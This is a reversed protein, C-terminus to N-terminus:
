GRVGGQFRDTPIIVVTAAYVDVTSEFSEINLNIFLAVNRFFDPTPVGDLVDAVDELFSLLGRVPSLGEVEGEKCVCRVGVQFEANKKKPFSVFEETITIPFVVCYPTNSNVPRDDIGEFISKVYSLRNEGGLAATLRISAENFIPLYVAM